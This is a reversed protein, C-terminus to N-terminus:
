ASRNDPEPNGKRSLKLVYAGILFVGLGLLVGFVGDYLRSDVPSFIGHLAKQMLGFSFLGDAFNTLKLALELPDKGRLFILWYLSIGLKFLSCAALAFFSLPTYDIFDGSIAMELAFAISIAGLLLLVIGMAVLTKANSKRSCERLASRKTRRNRLYPLRTMCLTFNYLGNLGVLPSSVSLATLCKVSGITLNLFFSFWLFRIRQALLKEVYPHNRLNM